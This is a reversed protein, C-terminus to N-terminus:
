CAFIMSCIFDVRPIDYENALLGTFKSSAELASHLYCAMQCHSSTVCFTMFCLSFVACQCYGNRYFNLGRYEARLLSYLVLVVMLSTFCM